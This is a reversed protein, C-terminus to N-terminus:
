SVLGGPFRPGRQAPSDRIHACAVASRQGFHRRLGDLLEVPDHDAERAVGTVPHLERARAERALGRQEAVVERRQGVERGLDARRGAREGADGAELEVEGGVVDERRAVRRVHEHRHVRGRQLVFMLSRGFPPVSITLRSAKM